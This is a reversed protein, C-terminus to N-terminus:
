NNIWRKELQESKARNSWVSVDGPFPSFKIVSSHFQKSVRVFSM